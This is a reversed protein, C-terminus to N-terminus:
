ILDDDELRKGLLIHQLDDVDHERAQVLVKFALADLDLDGARGLLEQGLLAVVGLEASSRQRPGDPAVDLVREGAADDAALEGGALGDEHVAALFAQGERDPLPDRRLSEWYCCGLSGQQQPLRKEHGTIGLADSSDRKGAAPERRTRRM